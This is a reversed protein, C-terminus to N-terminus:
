LIHSRPPMPQYPPTNVGTSRQQGTHPRKVDRKVNYQKVKSRQLATGNGEKRQIENTGDCNGTNQM